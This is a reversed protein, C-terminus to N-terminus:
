SVMAGLVPSVVSIERLHSARNLSADMQSPLKSYGSSLLIEAPAANSPAHSPEPCKKMNILDATASTLTGGVISRM